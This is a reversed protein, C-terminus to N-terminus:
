YMKGPLWLALGPVLTLLLVGLLLLVVYPLSGWGVEGLSTEAMGQIVFLNMGVPPTVLGVELLIVLIVGFWIADFGAAKMVPHVVPLTLLMLSLADVLCGLVVYMLVVLFLIAYPPAHLADIAAVIGRPVGASVLAFGMVQAGIVIFLIMANTRLADLLSRTFARWTLSRYLAAVAVAGAAGVGAAETPTMVGAYIGGMVLLILLAIPLIDGLGALRQRWTYRDAVAPVLGPRLRVQVALFLMFAATMVLGPVVGAIFLRGVSEGVTSGYIIFPISPPILIGLTGGAALTGTTVGMDYGRRRMEPVAISGVAAATAVSSGCLAAFVSCAVINVQALGGPVRTLWMALSRYFRASIGSHLIVTGMFLFLPVATLVFNEITNWVVSEIGGLLAPNTLLLGVVGAAGLAIAIWVGGFLLALMVGFFVLAPLLQWTM